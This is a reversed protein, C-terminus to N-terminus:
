SNPAAERPRDPSTGLGAEHGPDPQGHENLVEIVEAVVRQYRDKHCSCRKGGKTRCHKGVEAGCTGCAFERAAKERSTLKLTTLHSLDKEDSNEEHQHEALIDAAFLAMIRNAEDAYDQSTKGPAPYRPGYSPCNQTKHLQIGCNYCRLIM